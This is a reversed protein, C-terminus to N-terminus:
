FYVIIALSNVVGCQVGSIMLKHVAQPFNLSVFLITHFVTIKYCKTFVTELLFMIIGEEM